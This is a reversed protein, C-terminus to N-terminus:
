PQRRLGGVYSSQVSFLRPCELRGLYRLRDIFKFSNSINSCCPITWGCSAICFHLLSFAHCYIQETVQIPNKSTHVQKLSLVNTNPFNPDALPNIYGDDAMISHLLNFCCHLTVFPGGQMTMPVCPKGFSGGIDSGM